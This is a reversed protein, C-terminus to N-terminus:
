SRVFSVETTRRSWGTPRPAGGSGGKKDKDDKNDGGPPNDPGPTVPAASAGVAPDVGNLPPVAPAVAPEVDLTTVLGAMAHGAHPGAAHMHSFIHCHFMWRGPALAVTIIDFTQATSILLTDMTVPQPLDYGDQAVLQFPQGHPHFPHSLEGTPTLRIRIKEGVKTAGHALDTSEFGDGMLHHRDSDENVWTVSDGARVTIQEPNFALGKIENKHDEALAPGPTMVPVLFAVAVVLAIAAYLQRTM